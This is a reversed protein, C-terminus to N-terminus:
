GRQCTPCRGDTLPGRCKACGLHSDLRNLVALHRDILKEVMTPM